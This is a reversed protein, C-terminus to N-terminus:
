FLAALFEVVIGMFSFGSVVATIKGWTELIMYGGGADGVVKGLFVNSLGNLFVGAQLFICLFLFVGLGMAWDGDINGRKSSKFFLRYAVFGTACTLILWPVMAAIHAGTQVGMDGPNPWGIRPMHLDVDIDLGDRDIDIIDVDVDWMEEQLGASKTLKVFYVIAALYKIVLAVAFLIIAPGDASFTALLGALASFLSGFITVITTHKFVDFKPVDKCSMFQAVQQVILAISIIFIIVSGIRAILRKEAEKGKLLSIISAMDMLTTILWYYFGFVGVPITICILVDSFNKHLTTYNLKSKGVWLDERLPPPIVHESRNFAASTPVAFLLFVIALLKTSHSSTLKLLPNYGSRIPLSKIFSSM